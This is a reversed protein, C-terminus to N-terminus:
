KNKTKHFRCFFLRCLITCSCSNRCHSSRMSIHKGFCDESDNYWRTLFPENLMKVLFHDYESSLQKQKEQDILRGRPKRLM